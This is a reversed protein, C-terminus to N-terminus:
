FCQVSLLVRSERVAEVQLVNFFLFVVLLLLSISFFVCSRRLFPMVIRECVCFFSVFLKSLHLFGILRRVFLNGDFRFGDSDIM